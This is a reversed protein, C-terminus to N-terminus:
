PLRPLRRAKGRSRTVDMARAALEGSGEWGAAVAALGHKASGARAAAVREFDAISVLVAVPEGHRTIVVPESHEARRICDTLHAKAEAVTRKTM